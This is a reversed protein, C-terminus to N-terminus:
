GQRGWKGKEQEKHKSPSPLQELTTVLFPDGLCAAATPTTLGLDLLDLSAPLWHGQPTSTFRNTLSGYLTTQSLHYAPPGM